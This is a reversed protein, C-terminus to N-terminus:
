ALSEYRSAERKRSAPPAPQVQDSGGGHSFSYDTVCWAVTPLRVEVSEERERKVKSQWQRDSEPGLDM